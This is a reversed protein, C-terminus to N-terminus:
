KIIEMEGAFVRGKIQIMVKQTDKPLVNNNELLMEVSETMEQMKEMLTIYREMLEDYSLNRNNIYERDTNEDPTNMFVGKTLRKLQNENVM